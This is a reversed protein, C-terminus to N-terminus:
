NVISHYIEEVRHIMVEQSFLELARSRGAAGFRARLNADAALRHIAEALATPSNKPVVLGTSEHQVVFSTGSGVETTICPLGSAMAEVLVTGYAEARSNVPYVFIDGAHYVSPLAEDAVRGWFTVRESLNLSQSLTEWAQRMPGDGVVIARINSPLLPLAHLLNDLGKYHRLLGVFILTIPRTERIAPPTFRTLDAGLPVISVKNALGQLYPSSAAYPPSHVLIRSAGRLIRRFIPGYLRMIVRQIPRTVEAQYSIIYKRRRGFLWQAVEGVPYPIHLHTLDPKQQQLLRPLAVSLPTSAVTALRGAKLIRVGNLVETQSLHTLNTVLVTVEHGHKVQAEALVRIHNEMGGLVPYYDKYVHLIHM